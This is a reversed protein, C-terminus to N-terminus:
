NRHRKIKNTPTKEFPELVINLESVQSFKGLHANLKKCLDKLFSTMKHHVDASHYSAVEKFFDYKKSLEELNLYVKGMIKGKHEYVLSEVVGELQNLESEIEEPYINEGSPGLIMTKSRGRLYLANNKYMGLDGTHFWNGSTLVADTADPQKYYGKMNGKSNVVIEGIEDTIKPKIIRFEVGKLPQGVSRAKVKFVKSGFILSSTETLGYGCSYPIRGDRLFRETTWELAAGGIGLFRLRGGFAQKLKKGLLNNILYRIPWIHMGGRIIANKKLVPKIKNQYIKEIILPVILMMTPRVRKMSDALLTPTPPRNMYYIKAGQQIPFIMGLVNEYVHSLPLISLLVDSSNIDQMYYSMEAVYCLSGHTLLVGKSRGTTGSTYILSSIDDKETVPFEFKDIEDKNLEDVISKGTKYDTFDNIIIIDGKFDLEQNKKILNNSIFIMNAESHDLINSIEKLSFDPLIPVAIAGINTIAWFSIVWSPSNESLISVKDGKKIGQKTLWLSIEKVKEGFEKYTYAKEGIFGFVENSSFNEVSNQLISNLTHENFSPM